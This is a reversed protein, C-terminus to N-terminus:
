RKFFVSDEYIEEVTIPYFMSLMTQLERGSLRNM